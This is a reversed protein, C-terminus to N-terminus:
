SPTVPERLRLAIQDTIVVGSGVVLRADALYNGAALTLSTAAPITLTWGAATETTAARATVSFNAAIPAGASISTRGAPVAKLNASLATVIAPDGSLADLALSITEGRQYIYPTM